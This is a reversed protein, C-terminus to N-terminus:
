SDVSLPNRSVGGQAAAASSAVNFHARHQTDDQATFYEPNGTSWADQTATEQAHQLVNM